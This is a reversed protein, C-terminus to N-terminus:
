AMPAHFFRRLFLKVPKMIDRWILFLLGFNVQPFFESFSYKSKVSVFPYFGHRFFRFLFRKVFDM